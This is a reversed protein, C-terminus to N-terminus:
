VSDLFAGKERFVSTETFLKSTKVFCPSRVFKPVDIGTLDVYREKMLRDLLRFLGLPTERLSQRRAGPTKPAVLARPARSARSCGAPGVRFQGRGSGFKGPQPAAATLM